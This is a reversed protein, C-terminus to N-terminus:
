QSESLQLPDSQCCFLLCHGHGKKSCTQSQSTSQLKESCEEDELNKDGKFFKKFWWQLTHEKATGPGSTNNINCTTEVAKCVMKFKFKLIAQIQKKDSMM